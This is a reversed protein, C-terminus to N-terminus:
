KNFYIFLFFSYVLIGLVILVIIYLLNRGARSLNQSKLEQGADELYDSVIYIQYIIALMILFYLASM